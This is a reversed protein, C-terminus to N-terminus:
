HCDRKSGVEGEDIAAQLRAHDHMHTTVAQDLFDLAPRSTLM